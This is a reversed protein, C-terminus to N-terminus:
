FELVVGSYAPDNFTEDIAKAFPTYNVGFIGPWDIVEFEDKAVLAKLQQTTFPPNKDFLGWLWLIAYFAAYPIKVIIASSRSARKIEQIIDIYDIKELGSINYIGDRVQNEICSLIIKCFDGVYLPQRMYRGTGPIPFVPTKKMFRSLWGLHKRDFWGFMLTPRLIPCSVGSEIVIREQEKKTNTYFDNAVSEVV